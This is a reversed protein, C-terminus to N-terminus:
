YLSNRLSTACGVPVARQCVAHLLWHMLATSSILPCSCRRGQPTPGHRWAIPGTPCSNCPLQQLAATTTTNDCSASLPCHMSM